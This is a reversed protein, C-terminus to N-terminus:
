EAGKKRRLVLAIAVTTLVVGGVIFPTYNKAKEGTPLVNVDVAKDDTSEPTTEPQEAGSDMPIRTDGEGQTAPAITVPEDGRVVSVVPEQKVQYIKAGSHTRKIQKTKLQKQNPAPLRKVKKAMDVLANLTGVVGDSVPDNVFKKLVYGLDNVNTKILQYVLKVSAEEAANNLAWAWANTKLKKKKELQKLSGSTAMVKADLEYLSKAIDNKFTQVSTNFKADNTNVAFLRLLGEMIQRGSANSSSKTKAKSKEYTLKAICATPDVTCVAASTLKSFWGM